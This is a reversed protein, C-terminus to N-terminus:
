FGERSFAGITIYGLPFAAAEIAGKIAFVRGQVSPEVKNQMVAQTSSSVIPQTLFFLFIGVTFIVLSPQLGAVFIFVGSLLM